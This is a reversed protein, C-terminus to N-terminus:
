EESRHASPISQPQVTRLGWGLALIREMSVASARAMGPTM